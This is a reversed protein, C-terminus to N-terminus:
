TSTAEIEALAGNFSEIYAFLGPSGGTAIFVVTEDRSFAGTQILGILGAMAKGSYVPDLLLGETRAVLRVAAAMEPTPMGYGEGLFGDHLVIDTASISVAKEPSALAVTASALAATTERVKDADSNLVSIGRVKTGPAFLATGAALGAHTGASGNAVIIHDISMDPGVQDLMERVVRVYALCGIENSGGVPVIYPTKGAANMETLVEDLVQRGNATAPYTRIQAGFIGDLLVNGSQEYAAAENPVTKFLLGVCELGLKACAGATQRVHNSQLAGATIITDAGKAKADALLYELKRVKNGGGATQTLDERKVLLRPCEVGMSELAARLRPMEQLATPPGVLDLRDITDFHDTM